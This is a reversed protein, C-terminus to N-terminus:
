DARFDFESAEFACVGFEGFLEVRAFGHLAGFADELAIELDAFFVGVKGELALAALAAFGEAFYGFGDEQGVFDLAGM